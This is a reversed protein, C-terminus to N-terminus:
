EIFITQLWISNYVCELINRRLRKFVTLQQCVSIHWNLLSQGYYYPEKNAFFDRPWWIMLFLIKKKNELPALFSRNIKDTKRDQFTLWKQTTYNKKSISQNIESRNAVMRQYRSNPLFCWPRVDNYRQSKECPLLTIIEDKGNVSFIFTCSLM